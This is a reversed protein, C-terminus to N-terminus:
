REKDSGRGLRSSHVIRRVGFSLCVLRMHGAMTREPVCTTSHQLIERGPLCVSVYPKTRGPARRMSHQRIGREALVSRCIANHTRASHPAAQDRTAALVRLCMAKCAGVCLKHQVAAGRTRCFAYLVGVHLRRTAHMSAAHLRCPGHVVGVDRRRALQMSGAHPRCTAQMSGAHASLVSAYRKCRPWMYSASLECAVSTADVYLRCLAYM